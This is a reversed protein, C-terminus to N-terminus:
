APATATRAIRPEHGPEGRPLFSRRVAHVGEGGAVTRYLTLRYEPLQDAQVLRRLDSAFSRLPRTSGSREHLETMLWRWGTRNDGAGKRVLRYLWREMGGTLAFYRGDVALVRRQEIATMLWGPLTISLATVRGKEDGQWDVRELLSFTSGRTTTSRVSTRVTTAVLRDAAEKLLQYDRGGVERGITRLIDHVPASVTPNLPKELNAAEVIRSVAWLALDWDWVSAIGLHSPASVEVSVDGRQYHIPTVRKGKALSLFPVDMLDVTDRIPALFLDPQDTPRRAM